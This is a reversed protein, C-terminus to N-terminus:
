LASVDTMIFIPAIVDHCELITTRVDGQYLIEKTLYLLVDTNLELTACQLRLLLVM